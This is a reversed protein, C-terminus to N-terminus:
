AGAVEGVGTVLQNSANTYDAHLQDHESLHKTTIQDCEDNIRVFHTGHAVENNQQAVTRYKNLAAIVEDHAANLSGRWAEVGAPDYGIFPGGM